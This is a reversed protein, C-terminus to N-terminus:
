VWIMNILTIVLSFSFLKATDKSLGYALKHNIDEICQMAIEEAEENIVWSDESVKERKIIIVLHILLQQIRM